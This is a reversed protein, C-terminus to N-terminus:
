PDPRRSARGARGNRAERLAVHAPEIVIKRIARKRAVLDLGGIQVRGVGLDLLVLKAHKPVVELEERRVLAHPEISSVQGCRDGAAKAARERSSPRM